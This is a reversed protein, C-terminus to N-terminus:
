KQRVAAVLTLGFVVFFGVVGGLTRLFGGAHDPNMLGSLGIWLSAMALAVVCACIIFSLAPKFSRKTAATAAPAITHGTAMSDEWHADSEACISRKIM